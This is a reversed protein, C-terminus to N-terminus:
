RSASPTTLSENASHEPPFIWSIKAGDHQMTGECGIPHMDLDQLSCPGIGLIAEDPFLVPLQPEHEKFGM